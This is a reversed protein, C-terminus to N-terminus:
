FAGPVVILSLVMSLAIIIGIAIIAIRTWNPGSGKDNGAKIQQHPRNKKVVRRKRNKAM